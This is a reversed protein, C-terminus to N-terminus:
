KMYQSKIKDHWDQFTHIVVTVGTRRQVHECALTQQAHILVGVVALSTSLDVSRSTM